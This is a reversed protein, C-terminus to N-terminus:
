NKAKKLSATGKKENSIGDAMINYGTQTRYSVWAKKMM